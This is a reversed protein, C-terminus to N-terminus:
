DGSEPLPHYGETHLEAIAQPVYPVLEIAPDIDEIRDFKRHLALRCARLEIRGELDLQRALDVIQRYRSYNRQAFIEIDVGHLFVPIPDAGPRASYAEARRLMKLVGSSSQWALELYHKEGAPPGLHETPTDSRVPTANVLAAIFLSVAASSFIQRTLPGNARM